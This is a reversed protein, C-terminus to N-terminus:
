GTKQVRVARIGKPTQQTEFEVETNPDISRYGDMVLESQHVFIDKGGALPVIFGYGKEASFWKVSGKM